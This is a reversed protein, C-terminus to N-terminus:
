RCRVTIDPRQQEFRWIRNAEDPTIHHMTVIPQCWHRVGNDPGPGFPITAPKEAQLMPWRKSFEVGKDRLAKMLVYDGFEENKLAEDYRAAVGPDGEVFKSMAAGSLIIGSGGHAFADGNVYTPSGLYLLESSDLRELWLQLNSRVLYTDAEIFIYWKRGPRMQWSKELMHLFKYKDLSWAAQGTTSKLSSIDEGLRQYEQLTRYYNFIPNHLKAAETVNELADHVHHPGLFQDLDSFILLDQYCRLTTLLQTPLKDYIENAGTKVIVLSDTFNSFADCRRHSRSQATNDDSSPTQSHFLAFRSADAPFSGFTAILALFCFVFLVSFLIRQTFFRLLM